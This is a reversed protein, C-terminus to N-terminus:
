ETPRNVYSTFKRGQKRRIVTLIINCVPRPILFIPFLHVWAYIYKHCVEFLTKESTVHVGIAREKIITRSALYCVKWIWLKELQRANYGAKKVAFDLMRKYFIGEVQASDYNGIIGYGGAAICPESIIGLLDSSRSSCLIHIYSQLWYTNFFQEPNKISKARKTNWAFSSTFGWQRGVYNIFEKKDRTCINKEPKKSYKKLFTCHQIDIYKDSFSVTYLFILSLELNNELFSLINELANEVLIDDDSLLMTFKGNAMQMCQLFNGDAGLNKSNRVYKIFPYKIKYSAIIEPTEDTSCNDSILVEVRKDVQPLLINLMDKITKAGNYTPIAITLVPQEIKNKM